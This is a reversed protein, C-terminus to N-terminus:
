DNIKAEEFPNITMRKLLVDDDINPRNYYGLFHLKRNLEDKATRTAYFMKAYIKLELGNDTVDVEQNVVKVYGGDVTILRIREM